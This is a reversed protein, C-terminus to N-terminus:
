APIRGKIKIAEILIECTEVAHDFAALESERCDTMYGAQFRDVCGKYCAGYPQAAHHDFVQQPARTASQHRIMDM